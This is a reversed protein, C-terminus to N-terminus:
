FKLIQIRCGISGNNKKVRELANYDEKDGNSGFEWTNKDGGYLLSLLSCLNLELSLQASCCMLQKDMFM